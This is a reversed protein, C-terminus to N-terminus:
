PNLASEAKQIIQKGMGTEMLDGDRDHWDM